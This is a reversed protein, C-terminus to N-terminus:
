NLVDWAGEPESGLCVKHHPTRDNGNQINDPEAINRTIRDGKM